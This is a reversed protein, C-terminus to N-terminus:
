NISKSGEVATSARADSAELLRALLGHLMEAPAVKILSQTIARHAEVCLMTPGGIFVDVAVESSERGPHTFGCLVAHHAFEDPTLKEIKDALEHLRRAMDKAAERAAEPGIDVRHEIDM